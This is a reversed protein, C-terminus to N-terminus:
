QLGSKAMRAGIEGEAFDGEDYGRNAARLYRASDIWSSGRVVRNPGSVPGTPDTSPGTPYDGYWDHCWEWVNGLMDYLWYANPIKTGVPHTTDRANGCFWAISRLTGDSCDRATLEGAYTATTTGGRAAYEWEAETPLRYGSCDYITRYSGSPTCDITTPATGTCAYCEGLNGRRSVENAYQAFEHWSVREVPCDLGCATFLSPNYGMVDVFQRQTIETTMIWYNRTLRVEHSTEDSDRGLERPSEPSGMTFPTGSVDILVWEGPATPEGSVGSEGGGDPAGDSVVESDRGAYVGGGSDGDDGGSDVVGPVDADGTGM